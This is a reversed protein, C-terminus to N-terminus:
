RSRRTVAWAYWAGLGAGLAETVTLLAASVGFWTRWPGPVQMVHDSSEIVFHNILGFVLAGTMTLAMLWIAARSGTLASWLLGLVPGVVIVLWVFANGAASLAIGAGQHARGHAIAIGLHVLVIAALAADWATRKVRMCM